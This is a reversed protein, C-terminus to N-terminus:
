VVEEGASVELKKELVDMQLNLYEEKLKSLKYWRPVIIIALVIWLPIGWGKFPIISGSGFYCM